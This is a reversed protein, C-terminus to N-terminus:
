NEKWKIAQGCNPCYDFDEYLDNSCNPCLYLGQDNYKNNLKPKKPTARNVLIKLTKLVDYANFTEREKLVNFSKKYKNMREEEKRNYM